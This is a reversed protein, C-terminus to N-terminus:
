KKIRKLFEKTLFKYDKSVRSNENFDLATIGKLICRSVSVDRRVKTKFIKRPFAIEVEQIIERNIAGRVDWMAMVIGFVEVPHHQLFEEQFERLRDLAVISYVEPIACLVCRKSAFFASQTLWGLNPPTDIFCFDFDSRIQKLRLSLLKYSDPNTRLGATTELRDLRSNSTILSLSQISTPKIAKKIDIESQLISVINKDVDDPIGLGASLNAQSDFDILLVRKKHFKALCAGIHLTNSTKATGGKFSCFAFTDM